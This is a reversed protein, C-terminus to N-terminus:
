SLGAIQDVPYTSCWIVSERQRVERGSKMGVCLDRWRKLKDLKASCELVRRNEKQLEEIIITKRKWMSEIKACSREYARTAGIIDERLVEVESSRSTGHDNRDTM